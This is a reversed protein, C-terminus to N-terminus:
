ILNRLSDVAGTSFRPVSQPELPEPPGKARNPSVAQAVPVTPTIPARAVETSRTIPAQAVETAQALPVTRTILTNGKSQLFTNFGQQVGKYMDAETNGSPMQVSLTTAINTALNLMDGAQNGFVNQYRSELLHITKVIQKKLQPPISITIKGDEDATQREIFNCLIVTLDHSSYPQLVLRKPFRRAMGENAGFFCADMDTAYGAVIVISLGMRKDLFNVMESLAEYGYPSSDADISTIGDKKKCAMINYAEDILTVNELGDTLVSATKKGSEGIHAGTFDKPSLIRADDQLLFGCSGFVKAIVESVTTKGSGAPGTICMNFFTATFITSNRSMLFIYNALEDRINKRAQGLISGISIAAQKLRSTLQKKYTELNGLRHDILAIFKNLKELTSSDSPITYYKDRIDNVLTQLTGPKETKSLGAVLLSEAATHSEKKQSVLRDYVEKQLKVYKGRKYKLIKQYNVVISDKVQDLTMTVNNIVIVGNELLNLLREFTMTIGPNEVTTAPIDGNVIAIAGDTDIVDIANTRVILKKFDQNIAEENFGEEQIVPTNVPTNIPQTRETINSQLSWASSVTDEDTEEKEEEINREIIIGHVIAQTPIPKVYEINLKYIGDTATEPIYDTETRPKSFYVPPVSWYYPNAAKNSRIPGTAKIYPAPLTYKVMEVVPSGGEGSKEEPITVTYSIMDSRLPIQDLSKVGNVYKNLVLEVYGRVETLIYGSVDAISSSSPRKDKDLWSKFINPTKEEIKFVANVDAFFLNEDVVGGGKQKITKKGKPKSKKITQPM